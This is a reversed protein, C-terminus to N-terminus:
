HTMHSLAALIYACTHIICSGLFSRKWANTAWYHRFPFLGNQQSSTLCRGNWIHGSICAKLNQRISKMNKKNIKKKGCMKSFNCYSACAKNIKKFNSPSYSLILEQYYQPVSVIWNKNPNSSSSFFYTHNEFIILVIQWLLGSSPIVQFISYNDSYLGKTTQWPNVVFIGVM